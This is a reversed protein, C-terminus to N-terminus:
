QRIRFYNDMLTQRYRYGTWDGADYNKDGSEWITVDVKYHVFDSEETIITYVAKVSIFYFNIEQTQVKVDGSSLDYKITVDAKETKNNRSDFLEQTYKLEGRIYNVGVVYYRFFFDTRFLRETVYGNEDKKEMMDVLLKYEETDYDFFRYGLFSSKSNTCEINDVIDSISISINLDNYDSPLYVFLPENVIISYLFSERNKNLNIYPNNPDNPDITYIRNGYKDYPILRRAYEGETVDAYFGLPTFNDSVTYYLFIKGDGKFQAGDENYLQISSYVPEPIPEPEKPGEYNDLLDCSATILLFIFFFILSSKKLM